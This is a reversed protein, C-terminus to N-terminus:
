RAGGDRALQGLALRLLTQASQEDLRRIAVAARLGVCECEGLCQHEAGTRHSRAEALLHALASRATGGRAAVAPPLAARNSTTSTAQATTPRVAAARPLSGRRPMPSM